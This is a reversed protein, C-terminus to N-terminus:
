VKPVFCILHNKPQDNPNVIKVKREWILQQILHDVKQYTVQPFQTISNNILVDKGMLCQTKILNLIFEKLEKLDDAKENPLTTKQVIGLDQLVQCEHLVKSERILAGLNERNITQGAIVLENALASNLLSHYTAMYHISSLNPQIHFNPSNTFISNYIQTGALQKSGVDAARILCFVQCISNDMAKKCANMANFFSKMNSDETWIVGIKVRQNQIQYSLSYSAFHGTLLKTKVGNIQLTNLSEALMQILEPASLLTIKNIRRQIKQLEDQWLLKFAALLDTELSLKSNDIIQEKYIQFLRRGLDLVNRPDTKGGPFKQELAKQTLPFIPSNPRPNAQIHIPYLRFGWLAEAQELSIRKLLIVKYIGAKDSQHIRNSNQRWIDTTISIIILFNNWKENQIKSNVSFLAQLDLTGDPLRAIAELQDFCVVIPQTETSIRGFNSLIECAAEETEISRRVKLAQLSEDSLDEGRLWECALPYLEPNILDHLVGFFSDANYIGAQKYTQKFHKIFNQRDSSLLDWVSDDFIRQKLSRKTFASLSKLWLMLQSEEQGEPVYMLSDVTYRLIHRWIGDSDPWPSIYAFFAKDNLDSKLRGLLYSKGSGSDGALMVTRSNHDKTITDVIVSIEQLAEQHISEVQFASVQKERWFHGQKFTTPDFPNVERKIIDNISAM